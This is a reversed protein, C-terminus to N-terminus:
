EPDDIYNKYLEILQIIDSVAMDSLLDITDSMAPDDDEARDAATTMAGSFAKIFHAFESQQDGIQKQIWDTEYARALKSITAWNVKEVDTIGNRYNSISVRNIGTTNAIFASTVSKDTLIAKAKDMDSGLEDRWPHKFEIRAM